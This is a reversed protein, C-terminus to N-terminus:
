HSLIPNNGHALWCPLLRKFVCTAERGLGRTLSFVLPHSLLSSLMVYMGESWLSKEKTNRTPPTNKNSPAFPNFVRVDFMARETNGGGFGNAAIDLRANDERIATALSLHEGSVPQLRPEICVETCVESLLEAM